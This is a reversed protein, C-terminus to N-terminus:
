AVAIPWSTRRGDWPTRVHVLEAEIGEGTLAERLLTVDNEDDELNLIRPTSMLESFIRTSEIPGRLKRLGGDTPIANSSVKRGTEQWSRFRPPSFSLPQGNHSRQPERPM